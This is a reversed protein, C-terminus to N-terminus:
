GPGHPPATAPPGSQGQEPEEDMEMGGPKPVGAARAQELYQQPTLHPMKVTFAAIAWLEQESHTPGFAPMGTDRVGNKVIWYTSGIHLRKKRELLPPHPYLGKAIESPEIGPAGHCTVCMEQYHQLGMRMMEPSDVGPPPHVSEGGRDVAEDAATELFWEVPAFHHSGAAVPVLGAMAMAVAVGCCLAIFALISVIATAIRGM